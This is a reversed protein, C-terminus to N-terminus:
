LYNFVSNFKVKDENPLKRTVLKKVIRLFLSTVFLAFIIFLIAKVSLSSENTFNITRSLFDNIQGM